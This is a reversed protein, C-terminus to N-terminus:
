MLMPYQKKLTLNFPHMISYAGELPINEPLSAWLIDPLSPRSPACMCSFGDPFAFLVAQFVQVVLCIYIMPISGVPHYHFRQSFRKLHGAQAMQFINNGSQKRVPLYVTTWSLTPTIGGTVASFNHTVHPLIPSSKIWPKSPMGLLANFSPTFYLGSRVRPTGLLPYIWQEISFAFFLGGLSGADYRGMQKNSAIAFIISLM